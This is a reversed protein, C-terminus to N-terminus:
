KLSIIVEAYTTGATYPYALIYPSNFSKVKDKILLPPNNHAGDAGCEPFRGASETGGANLNAGGTSQLIFLFELFGGAQGGARGPYVDGTIYM